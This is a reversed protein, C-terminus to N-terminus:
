EKVARRGDLFDIAHDIQTAIRSGDPSIAMARVPHAGRLDLLEAGDAVRYLRLGLETQVLLTEGRDLFVVKWVSATEPIEGLLKWPSRDWVRLFHDGLTVLRHGDTSAAVHEISARHAAHEFVIEGRAADWIRLRRDLSASALLNTGPIATVANVTQPHILSHLLQGSLLDILLLQQETALAAWGGASNLAVGKVPADTGLSWIEAKSELQIGRLAQRDSNLVIALNQKHALQAWTPAEIRLTDLWAGEKADVLYVADDRPMCSVIRDDDSWNLSHPQRGGSMLKPEVYRLGPYLRATGDRSGTLFVNRGPVYAVSNIRDRHGYRVRFASSANRSARAIMLAGSADGVALTDEADSTVCRPQVLFDHPGAGRGFDEGATLDWSLVAGNRCTGVLIRQSSEVSLAFVHDETPNRLKGDPLRPDPGARAVDWGRVDGDESATFLEGRRSFAITRVVDEHGALVAASEGTASHWVRVIRDGGAAAIWKGDPSFKVDAQWETSGTLSDIPQLEPLRWRHVPGDEGVAALTSGDPSFAIASVKGVQAKLEGIKLRTDTDWLQIAGDAGATALIGGDSSVAVSTVSGDHQGLQESEQTLNHLYWWAFDRQDQEGPKPTHRALIKLTRDGASGRWAELALHMDAAYGNRRAQAEATRAADRERATEQLLSSVRRNHEFLGVFLVVIGACVVTALAALAPRRRCWKWVTTPLSTPRAVIPEDRLYRDLDNALELAAQYRRSPLKELCRLCITELDLPISRRQKKPRLPEADNIQRLVEIDSAAGFPARGTLLEYLVVGLSYIDARPGIEATRGGAQEPSMYRVTGFLAGSRTMDQDAAIIKALGFDMLKPVCDELRVSVADARATM